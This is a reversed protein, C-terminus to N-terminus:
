SVKDIFFKVPSTLGKVVEWKVGRGEGGRVVDFSGLTPTHPVNRVEDTLTCLDVKRRDRCRWWRVLGSRGKNWRVTM